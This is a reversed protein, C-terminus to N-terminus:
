GPFRVFSLLHRQRPFSLMWDWFGTREKRRRQKRTIKNKTIQFLFHFDFCIRFKEWRRKVMFLFFCGTNLNFFFQKKIVRWLHFDISWFICPGKLWLFLHLSVLIKMKPRTEFNEWARKSKVLSKAVCEAWYSRGVPLTYHICHSSHISADSCVKSNPGDPKNMFKLCNDHISWLAHPHASAWDQLGCGSFAWKLHHHMVPIVQLSFHLDHMWLHVITLKGQSPVALSQTNFNNERHPQRTLPSTVSPWCM